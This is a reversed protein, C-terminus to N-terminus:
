DNKNIRENKSTEEKVTIINYCVRVTVDVSKEFNKTFYLNKLCFRRCIFTPTKEAGGVCPLYAINVKYLARNAKQM